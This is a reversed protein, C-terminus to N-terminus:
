TPPRKSRALAALATSTGPAAGTGQTGGFRRALRRLGNRVCREPREVGADHVTYSGRGEERDPPAVKLSAEPDIGTKSAWCCPDGM